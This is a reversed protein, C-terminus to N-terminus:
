RILLLAPIRGEGKEHHGLAKGVISLPSDKETAKECCGSQYSSVLSDGPAIKGGEGSVRLNVVGFFAVLDMGEPKQLGSRSHHEPLYDVPPNLIMAAKEVIAGVVKRSARESCRALLGEEDTAVLLDGAGLVENQRISFFAAIPAQHPDGSKGAYISGSFRSIGRVWLGLDSVSYGRDDHGGAILSYFSESLFRGGPGSGSVGLSGDGSRSLGLVGAKEGYGLVGDGDSRGTLGAGTSKNIGQVPAHNVPPPSVSGYTEGMDAEVRITGTHSSYDHQVPAYDHEHPLPKRPDHLRPDTSQVVHGSLVAGEPALKVIGADDASAQQLRSDSGQVAVGSRAEGDSALEVIGPSEQTALRLRPDSGQVATEPESEGARAFRMIGKTETSADRLRPDNGQVAESPRNSGSSALRVIGPAKETAYKLRSDSGQVVVGSRDEGDEALETLGARDTSAPKLRDDNAQVAHLGREEGNRALRVIGPLDESAAKLRRDAGQVVVGERDEGDSALEVIGKFDTTADRLRRDSGQVAVGDRAEGDLALRVIGSRLVSSHPIPEAPLTRDQKEVPDASAFLEVEIIQSLFKGERTRANEFITIQIYRINLPLFRWRYWQGPEALFGSEEMLHHWTINDESYSIHFGEPFLPDEVARSLLRIESVRNVSGLDLRIYEDEQRSRLPSSWGYDNREDILNDKVWLRDLEGSVEIDVIGSVMVKFQGFASVYGEESQKDR